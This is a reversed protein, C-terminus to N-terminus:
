KGQKSTIFTSHRSEVQSKISFKLPLPTIYIYTTAATHTKNNLHNKFIKNLVLVM